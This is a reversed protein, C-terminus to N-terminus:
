SAYTAFGDLNGNEHYYKYIDDFYVSLPHVAELILEYVGRIEWQAHTTLRKLFMHRLETFNVGVVIESAVANPLVFRADENAKGFGAARLKDRLSLYNERAQEIAVTFEAELGAERISPPVVYGFDGEDCYRQSEQSYATHRHRVLQHTFARSAGRIRIVVQAHEGVSLHGHKVLRDKILKADREATASENTQYCTRAADGILRDVPKEHPGSFIPMVFDGDVEVPLTIGIIEVEAYMATIGETHKPRDQKM